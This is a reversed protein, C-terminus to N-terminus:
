KTAEFRPMNWIFPSPLESGREKLIFPLRGVQYRTWRQTTSDYEIVCHCRFCTFRWNVLQGIETKDVRIHKQEGCGCAVSM